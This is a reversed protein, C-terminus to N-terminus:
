SQCLSGFFTLLSEQRRCSSNLAYGYYKLCKPLKNIFGINPRRKQLVQVMKDHANLASLTAFMKKSEKYILTNPVESTYNFVEKLIQRYEKERLLDFISCPDVREKNSLAEKLTKLTFADTLEIIGVHKPLNPL